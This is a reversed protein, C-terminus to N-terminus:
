KDFRRANQIALRSREQITTARGHVADTRLTIGFIDEHYRNEEQLSTMVADAEELSLGGQTQIIDRVTRHVDEAMTCDGCVYMHGRRTVVTEYVESSNKKLLDQVYTKPTGTERSVAFHVGKLVGAALMERAELHYLKWTKYRCGSYLVMGGCAEWKAKTVYTVLAVTIHIEKPHLLPSSSISYFRPKLSPLEMLLRAADPSASGFEELVEWLNPYGDHRWEEYADADTALHLLREREQPDSASSSLFHLLGPTPPTCIDLHRSLLEEVTATGVTEVDEWVKALGNASFKEVLRQLRVPCDSPPLGQLRSVIRKVLEEENVPFIGLHDGPAYGGFEERGRTDMRLLMTEQIEDGYALPLIREGGLERLLNDVYVGFSAFNPYSSSGLAFVAFRCQACQSAGSHLAQRVDCLPKLADVAVAKEERHEGGQSGSRVLTRSNLRKISEPRGLSEGMKMAHLWKAFEEGSEPPDGNGTTSTVVLVLSEHKLDAINYDSMCYIQSNFAQAFLSTLKSAFRESRGTESAFLITAKIRRLLAQKYMMSSFRVARAIERFTLKRRSSPSGLANRGRQWVHSKWPPIQYEFSPSLHYLAM